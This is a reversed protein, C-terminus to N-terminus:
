RTEPPGNWSTPIIIQRAAPTMVSIVEAGHRMLLRAIEVSRVAAVSGTIGLVIRKGTLEDGFTGVINQSPHRRIM